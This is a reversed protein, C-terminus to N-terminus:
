ADGEDPEGTTVGTSSPSEEIPAPPVQVPDPTPNEPTPDNDIDPMTTDTGVLSEASTVDRIVTSKVTRLYAASWRAAIQCASM